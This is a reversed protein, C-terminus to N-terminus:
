AYESVKRALFAPEASDVAVRHEELRGEGRDRPVLHATRLEDM